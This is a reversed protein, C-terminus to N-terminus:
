TLTFKIGNCSINKRLPVDESGVYLSLFCLFFCLFNFVFFQLLYCVFRKHIRAFLSALFSETVIAPYNDLNFATFYWQAFPIGRLFLLVKFWSAMWVHHMTNTNRSLSVAALLSCPAATLSLYCSSSSSLFRFITCM